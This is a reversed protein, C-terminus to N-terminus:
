IQIEPLYSHIKLTLMGGLIAHSMSTSFFSKSNMQFEFKVSFGTNKKTFETAM